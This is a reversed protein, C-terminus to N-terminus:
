YRTMKVKARGHEVHGVVDRLTDREQVKRWQTQAVAYRAPYFDRLWNLVTNRFIRNVMNTTGEDVRPRILNDVRTLIRSCTNINLGM